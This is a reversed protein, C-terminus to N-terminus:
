LPPRHRHCRLVLFLHTCTRLPGAHHAQEMVPHDLVRQVRRQRGFLASHQHALDGGPDMDSHVPLRHLHGAGRHVPPDARPPHTPELRQHRVRHPHRGPRRGLHQLQRGPQLPLIRPARRHLDRPHQPRVRPPRGALARQLPVEHAQAQVLEPLVPRLLDEAPELGGARVLQPHAVAQVPRQDGAAPRDQEAEQVIVGPRHHRGPEAEDLVRHAQGDGQTGRQGRPANGFPDQQIGRM